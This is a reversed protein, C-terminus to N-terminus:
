RTARMDEDVHVLGRDTLQSGRVLTNNGTSSHLTFFAHNATTSFRVPMINARAEKASHAIIRCQLRMQRLYHKRRVRLM